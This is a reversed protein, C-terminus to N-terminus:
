HAERAGVQGEPGRVRPDELEQVGPRSLGAEQWLCSGPFPQSPGQDGGSGGAHRDRDGEKGGRGVQKGGAGERVLKCWLGCVLRMLVGRAERLKGPGGPCCWSM